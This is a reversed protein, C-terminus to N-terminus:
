ECLIHGVYPMEIILVESEGKPFKYYNWFSILEYKKPNKSEKTQLGRNEQTKEMIENEHTVENLFMECSENQILTNDNESSGEM